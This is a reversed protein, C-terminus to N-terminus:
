GSGLRSGLRKAIERDDKTLKPAFISAVGYPIREGPLAVQWGIFEHSLDSLETAYKDRQEAIVRDIIRMEGDTFLSMNPERLAIPRRYPYAGGSPRLEIALWEKWTMGNLISDQGELLPGRPAARYDSGTIADGTQRFWEFDSWFLVKAVRTVGFKPDDEYRKAIYLILEYLKETSRTVM